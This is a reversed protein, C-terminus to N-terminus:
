ETRGEKLDVRYVSPPVTVSQFGFFLESGDWEGGLGAVTGLTPLAVSGLGAVLKGERDFARLASSAQHMYQAILFDGVAAVHELVDEGEPILEVWDGRAPKLPDVRFLRYRPAEHNTHVYLRDNRAVVDFLANVKEVLPVFAADAKTRDKFFVEAKAWGQQETVVLWRGDPSLGVNPWDEKARGEGFVEADRKPDGGLEHFFVRRHYNEDGKAVTGSNPYSTDFFGSNERLWAVSCARTRDIVDDLDKGTSVDRVRLASQESGNASTGYALLKGDRSPFWWDLAVTGDTALINPDVLVRDQGNLGERV